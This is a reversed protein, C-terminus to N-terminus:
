AYGRQRYPNTTQSHRHTASLKSRSNSRTSDTPCSVQWIATAEMADIVRCVGECLIAARADEDDEVAAVRQGRWWHPGHIKRRRPIRMDSSSGSSVFHGTGVRGTADCVHRLNRFPIVRVGADECHRSIKSRDVPRGDAPVRLGYRRTRLLLDARVLRAPAAVVTPGGKSIKDLTVTVAQLGSLHSARDNGRDSSTPGATPASPIKAPHSVVTDQAGDRFLLATIMVSVILAFLASALVRRLRTEIKNYADVEIENRVAASLAPDSRLDVERRMSELMSAAVILLAAVLAWPSAVALVAGVRLDNTTALSTVLNVAAAGSIGAVFNLASPSLERLTM